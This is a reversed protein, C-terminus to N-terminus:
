RQGYNNKAPKSLHDSVISLVYSALAVTGIVGILPTLDKIERM